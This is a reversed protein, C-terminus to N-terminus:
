ARSQPFLPSSNCPRTDATGLSQQRTLSSAHPSLLCRPAPQSPSSHRSNPDPLSPPRLAAQAGDLPSAPRRSSPHATTYSYKTIQLATSADGGRGVAPKNPDRPPRLLPLSSFPDVGPSDSRAPAQRTDTRSWPSSGFVRGLERLLRTILM